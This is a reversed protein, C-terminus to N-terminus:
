GAYKKHMEAVYDSHPLKWKTELQIILGTRHWDAIVGSMFKAFDPEGPKIAIAWPVADLVPLPMGYGPWQGSQLQAEIETNDYLFAVCRGQKLATLAEVVGTFAVVNVGFKQSASKNYYAGQIGCVPKGKLQNWDTLHLQDSALVSYGSAYYDPHIIDVIKAREPTDGMTAILLDIKGQNLFQMRNSGTVPVFAVKVGLRKAVDAALDPELGEIDGNPARFGFPPYDAKVGVVLTGREKIMQIENPAAKAPGAIALVAALVLGTLMATIKM